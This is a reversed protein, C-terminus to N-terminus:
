HPNGDVAHEAGIKSGVWASLISMAICGVMTLVRAWELAGLAVCFVLVMILAWSFSIAGLPWFARLLTGTLAPLGAALLFAMGVLGIGLPVGGCIGVGSLGIM